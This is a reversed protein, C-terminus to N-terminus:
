LILLFIAYAATLLCATIVLIRLNKKKQPNESKKYASIGAIAAFILAPALILVLVLDALRDIVAGLTHRLDNDAILVLVICVLLILLLMLREQM